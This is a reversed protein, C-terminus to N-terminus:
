LCFHTSERQRQWHVAHIHTRFGRWVLVDFLWSGCVTPSENDIETFKAGVQMSHLLRAFDKNALYNTYNTRRFITRM